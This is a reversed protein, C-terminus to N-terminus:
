GTCNLITMRPVVNCSAGCPSRNYLPALIAKRILLDVWDFEDEFLSLQMFSMVLQLEKDCGNCFRGQMVCFGPFSMVDEDLEHADRTGLRLLDEQYISTEGLKDELREWLDFLKGEAQVLVQSYQNFKIARVGVKEEEIEKLHELNNSTDYTHMLQNIHFLGPTAKGIKALSPIDVNRLYDRTPDLSTIMGELWTGLLMSQLELDDNMKQMVYQWLFAEFEARKVLAKRSNLMPSDTAKLIDSFFKLYIDLQKISMDIGKQLLLSRASLLRSDVKTVDSPRVKICRKTVTIEAKLFTDPLTEGDTKRKDDTPQEYFEDSLGHQKLIDKCTSKGSVHMYKRELGGDRFNLGQENEHIKQLATLYVEYRSIESTSRKNKKKRSGTLTSFWASDAVHNKHSIKTDKSQEKEESM